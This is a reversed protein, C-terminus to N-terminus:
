LLSHAQGSRHSPSQEPLWAWLLHEFLAPQIQLWMLLFYFNEQIELSKQWQIRRPEAGQSSHAGTRGLFSAHDSEEPCLVDLNGVEMQKGRGGEQKPPVKETQKDMLESAKCVVKESSGM